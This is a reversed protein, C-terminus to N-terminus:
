NDFVLDDIYIIAQKTAQQLQGNIARLFTDLEKVKDREHEPTANTSNFAIAAEFSLNNAAISLVNDLTAKVLAKLKDKQMNNAYTIIPRKFASTELDSINIYYVQNLYKKYEDIINKFFLEIVDYSCLKDLLGSEHSLEKFVTVYNDFSILFLSLYKNKNVGTLSTVYYDRVVSSFYAQMQEVYNGFSIREDLLLEQHVEIAKIELQKMNTKFSELVKLKDKQIDIM